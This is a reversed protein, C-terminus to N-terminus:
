SFRPTSSNAVISAMSCARESPTVEGLAVVAGEAKSVVKQAIAVVDGDQLQAGIPTEVILTALDEGSLVEPLPGLGRADLEGM